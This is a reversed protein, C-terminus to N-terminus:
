LEIVPANDWDILKDASQLDIFDFDNVWKELKQMCGKLGVYSKFKRTVSLDEIMPQDPDFDRPHFYTMIYDSNKSWNKILSYPSLRFYGGGSFIWKKTLVITTNIPFEKLELGNTLM